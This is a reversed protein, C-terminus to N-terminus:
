NTRAPEPPRLYKAPADIPGDLTRMFLELQDAYQIADCLV